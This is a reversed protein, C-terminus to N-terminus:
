IGEIGYKNLLESTAKDRGIKGSIMKGIREYIEEGTTSNDIFIGEKSGILGLEEEQDLKRLSEKVKEPQEEFTKEEFLMVDDNPIEVEYLRSNGKLLDTDIKKIKEKYKSDVVNNLKDQKAEELSIGWKNAYHIIDIAVDLLDKDLNTLDKLKNKYGEAAEKNLAFYLGYGYAQAGEGEGIHELTFKDFNYPSGHYATQYFIDRGLEGKSLIKFKQIDTFNEKQFETLEDEAKELFEREYKQLEIKKNKIEKLVKDINIENIEYNNSSRSNFAEHDSLRLIFGNPTYIYDSYLGGDIYSNPLEEAIRKKIYDKSDLYKKDITNKISNIEELINFIKKTDKEYKYYKDMRELYDPFYKKVFDNHKGKEIEMLFNEIDKNKILSKNYFEKYLRKIEKRDKVEYYNLPFNPGEHYGNKEKQKLLEERKKIIEDLSKNKYENIINKRIEIEQPQKEKIKINSIKELQKVRKSLDELEYTKLNSEIKNRFASYLNVARDGRYIEIFDNTNIEGVIDKIKTGYNDIIYKKINEINNEDEIVQLGGMNITLGKNELDKNIEERLSVMKNLKDTFIQERQELENKLINFEEQINYNDEQNLIETKKNINDLEQLKVLDNIDLGAEELQNIFEQAQETQINIDTDKSSYRANGGIEENIANILTNVGDVDRYDQIEPFYGNQWALKFQNDLSTDYQINEKTKRDKKNIFRTDRILGRYQKNLDQSKLDGKEDFVGGNNILFQILSKSKDKNITARKEKISKLINLLDQKDLNEKNFTQKFEPLLDNNIKNILDQEQLRTNQNNSKLILNKVIDKRSTGQNIAYRIFVNDLLKLNNEVREQTEGQKVFDNKLQNIYDNYWQTDQETEYKELQQLYNVKQKETMTSLHNLAKDKDVGKNRLKNYLKATSYSVGGQIAVAGITILFEDTSMGMSKLFNELTYKDDELGITFRLPQELWEEFVEEVFGNWGMKAVVNQLNDNFVSQSAKKMYPLMKEMIPNALTSIDKKFLTQTTKNALKGTGAVLGKLLNGGALETANSIYVDGTAKFLEKLSFNEANDMKNFFEEGKDTIKLMNALQRSQYASYVATPSQLATYTGANVVGYAIKTLIPAEKGAEALLGLGGTLGYIALFELPVRLINGVNSSLSGLITYGRVEDEKLEKNFQRLKQTEEQTLTEGRYARSIIDRMQKAEVGDVVYDAFPIFDSVNNKTFGEWFGIEGKSKLEETEKYNLYNQIDEQTINQKEQYHRLAIKNQEQMTLPQTMQQKFSDYSLKNKYYLNYNTTLIQEDDMDKYLPNSNKLNDLRSNM